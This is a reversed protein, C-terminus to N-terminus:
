HTCFSNYSDYSPALLNPRTLEGCVQLQLCTVSQSLPPHISLVSNINFLTEQNTLLLIVAFYEYKRSPYVDAASKSVAYWQKDQNFYTLNCLDPISVILYWVQGLIGIPFHCVWLLCWLRSGLPWGKGLLHFNSTHSTFLVKCKPIKKWHFKGRM